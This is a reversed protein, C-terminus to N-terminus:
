VAAPYDRVAVSVSVCRLIPQRHSALPCSYVGWAATTSSPFFFVVLSLLIHHILPCMSDYIIHADTHAWNYTLNLLMHFDATTHASIRSFFFRTRSFFFRIRSFFFRTM